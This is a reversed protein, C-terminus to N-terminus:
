TIKMENIQHIQACATIAATEVRLRFPGLTVKKVDLAEMSAIEDVSFGGEPGILLM